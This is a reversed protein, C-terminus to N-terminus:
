KAFLYELGWEVDNAWAPYNHGGSYEHYAVPYGKEKLLSVMKHSAGLLWEFKGADLWLKLPLRPSLRILDWILFDHEQITFAGSQSLVHGFIHPARVGAFLAMLGGMSAGMVGYAGPNEELSLLNLKEAAFPLLRSTVFFLTSESCAYELSRFEGGNNVMALAVPRIRGAAILGDVLRPLHVRNYYAHGDWVVVLPCPEKVPPQYLTFARTGSGLFGKSPLTHRTVVGRPIGPRARLLPSPRGSPMYFYHNNNGLGNPTRRRLNFPDTQRSGDDALFAYEIYADQPLRLSFTWCDPGAPQMPQPSDEWDCFDGMIRPPHAGQWVFVATDGEILPSGLRRAKDLWDVTM